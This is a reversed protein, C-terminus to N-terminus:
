FRLTASAGAGAPSVSLETDDPELVFTLVAAVAAVAAVGLSINAYRADRDGREQIAVAEDYTHAESNANLAALDDEAQGVRYAFYGSTAGAIVGIATWTPWRVAAPLGGDRSGGGGGDGTDVPAAEGKAIVRRVALENGRGDLATVRLEVDETAATPVTLEVTTGDGHAEVDGAVARVGAIMALPDSTELTVVLTAGDREVSAAVTLGGLKVADSQAEAFPRAIKPSSGEPLTAAPDVLIWRVFHTRATDIDDLAAAIEGALRYARGLEAVTLGGGDLAEGVLAQATEYDIEDVARQAAALKDNGAHAPAAAAALAAAVLFAVRKV